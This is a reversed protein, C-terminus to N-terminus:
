HRLIQSPPTSLFNSHSVWGRAATSCKMKLDDSSVRVPRTIPPVARRPCLVPNLRGPGNARDMWALSLLLRPRFSYYPATGRAFWCHGSGARKHRVESKGRWVWFPFVRRQVPGKLGNEPAGKQNRGCSQGPLVRHLLSLSCKLCFALTQKLVRSNRAFPRLSLISCM